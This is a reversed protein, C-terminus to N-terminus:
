MRHTTEYAKYIDKLPGSLEGSSLKPRLLTPNIRVIQGAQKIEAIWGSCSYQHFKLIPISGFSATRVHPLSKRRSTNGIFSIEVESSLNVKTSKGFRKEELLGDDLEVTSWVVNNILLIRLMLFVTALLAVAFLLAGPLMRHIALLLMKLVEATYVCVGISFGSWIIRGATSYHFVKRQLM